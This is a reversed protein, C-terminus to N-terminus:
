YAIAFTRTGLVALYAVYALLFLIGATRGVPRRFWVFLSLLLASGLMVPFDLALMGGPVEIPLPSLVAGLGMIALINFINSGVVTGIAVETHKRMAATITTALEPLSTGIALVTLGVITESVGLHEAINVSANVVLNAGLPLFIAGLVIFLVTTRLQSPLGLVWELPPKLVSERYAKAAERATLANVAILAALLILGDLRTLARTASLGILALTALIMFVCDRRVSREGYVLPYIVAGAGMVLLVNATNSGVVNGLVLGPYGTLAAQLVVVLEPLSTGFAVVTLAIVMPSVHFRRALAVAGRVLLDGGALLYVLGGTLHIFLVPDM